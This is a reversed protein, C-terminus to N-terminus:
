EKPDTPKVTCCCASQVTCRLQYILYDLCELQRQQAHIGDLLDRRREKLRCLRACDSPLAEYSAIFGEDCGADRLNARTRERTRDDM